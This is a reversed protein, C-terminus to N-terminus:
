KKCNDEWTDTGATGKLAVEKDGKRTITFKQDMAKGMMVGNGTWEETDGQWGKSKAMSWGGMNDSGFSYFTKTTPDYGYIAIEKHTGPMGEAKGEAHAVVVNNDLDWAAKYTGTAKIEKGNMTFRGTCKWTGIMPAFEQKLEPAPKGPEPPKAEPAKGKDQDAGQAFAVVSWLAVVVLAIKRM